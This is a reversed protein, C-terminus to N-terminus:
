VCPDVDETMELVVDRVDILAAGAAEYDQPVEMSVNPVRGITTFVSTGDEDETFWGVGDVDDCRSTPLLAEPPTVGCRLTIRPSGWAAVRPSDVPTSAEDLVSDPAADVLARCAPGTGPETEFEYPGAACGTLALAAVVSGSATLARLRSM